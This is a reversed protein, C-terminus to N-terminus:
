DCLEGGMLRRRVRRSWWKVLEGRGRAMDWNPLCNGLGNSLGGEKVRWWTDFSKLYGGRKSERIHHQCKWNPM